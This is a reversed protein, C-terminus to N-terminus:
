WAKGRTLVALLLCQPSFAQTRCPYYKSLCLLHVINGAAKEKSM